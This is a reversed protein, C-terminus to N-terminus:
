RLSNQAETRPRSSIAGTAPRAMLLERARNIRDASSRCGAYSEPPFPIPEVYDAGLRRRRAEIIAQAISQELQAPAAANELRRIRNNIARM